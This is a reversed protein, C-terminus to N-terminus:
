ITSNGVNHPVNLAADFEREYQEFPSGDVIQAGWCNHWHYVFSSNFGELANRERKSGKELPKFFWSFDFHPCLTKDKWCFDILKYPVLNMDKPKHEILFGTFGHLGTAKREQGARILIDTIAASQKKFHLFANNIKGRRTIWPYGFEGYKTILPTIDKLFLTDLDFYLGGYKYLEILRAWDARYATRRYGNAVISNGELPTGVAEAVPDYHHIQVSLSAMQQLWPNTATENLNDETWVMVIASPNSQFFSKQTALLSKISFAQKRGFGHQWYSHFVFLERQEQKQPQKPQQPPKQLSLVVFTGVMVMFVMAFLAIVKPKLGNRPGAMKSWIQSFHDFM